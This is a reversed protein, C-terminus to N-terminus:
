TIAVHSITLPAIRRNQFDFAHGSRLERWVNEMGQAFRLRYHIDNFLKVSAMPVAVNPHWEVVLLHNQTQMVGLRREDFLIPATSLRLFTRWDGQGYRVFARFADFDALLCFEAGAVFALYNFAIKAVTRFVIDDLRYHVAVEERVLPLSQDPRCWLVSESRFGCESLKRMLRDYDEETEGVVICEHDAFRSVVEVTLDVESFMTAPAKESVAFGVQPVYSAVLVERQVDPTFRSKAGAFMASEGAAIDLRNGGIQAAEASSKLGSFLRMLGEASNRAFSVELNDGFWQNCGECVCFITFNTKFNGFARPMVHEPRAFGDKSTIARCYICTTM